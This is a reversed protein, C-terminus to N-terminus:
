LPGPASVRPIATTASFSGLAPRPFPSPYPTPPPSAQENLQEINADVDVEPPLLPICMAKRYAPNDASPLARSRSYRSPLSQTRHPACLLPYVILQTWKEAMCDVGRNEPQNFCMEM